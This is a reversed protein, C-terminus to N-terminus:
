DKRVEGPKQWQIPDIKYPCWCCSFGGAVGMEPKIRYGGHLGIGCLFRHWLNTLRM